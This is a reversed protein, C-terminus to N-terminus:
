CTPSPSASPTPSARSRTAPRVRYGLDPPLAIRVGVPLSIGMGPRPFASDPTPYWTVGPNAAVLADPTTGFAAAISALTDSARIM